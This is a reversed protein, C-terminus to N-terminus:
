EAIVKDRFVSTLKHLKYPWKGNNDGVTRKFWALAEEDTTVDELNWVGLMENDSKITYSVFVKESTQNADM